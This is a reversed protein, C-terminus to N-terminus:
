MEIPPAGADEVAQELEPMVNDTIDSLSQKFEAL